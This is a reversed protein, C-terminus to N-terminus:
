GSMQFGTEVTIVDVVDVQQSNEIRVKSTKRCVSIAAAAMDRARDAWAVSKLYWVAELPSTTEPVVVVGPAGAAGVPGLEGVDGVVGVVGGGAGTSLLENVSLGEASANSGM